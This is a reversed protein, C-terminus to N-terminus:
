RWSRKLRFKTESCGTCADLYAYCAILGSSMASMKVHRECADRIPGGEHITVILVVSKALEYFMLPNSVGHSLRCVNLHQGGREPKGGVGGKGPTYTGIALRVGGDGSRLMLTWLAFREAM